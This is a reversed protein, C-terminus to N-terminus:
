DDKMGKKRAQERRWSQYDVSSPFVIFFGSKRVIAKAWPFLAKVYGYSTAAIRGEDAMAQQEQCNRARDIYIRPLPTM